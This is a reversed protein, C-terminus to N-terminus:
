SIGIATALTYCVGGVTVAVSALMGTAPGREGGTTGVYVMNPGPTLITAFATGFFVGTLIAFSGHHGGSARAPRPGPRYVNTRSGVAVPAAHMPLPRISANLSPTIAMRIVMMTSSSRTGAPGA